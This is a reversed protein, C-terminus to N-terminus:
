DPLIKELQDRIEKSLKEPKDVEFMILLNGKKKVGNIDIYFGLNKVVKMYGDYIVKGDYNNISYKKGSIHKLEFKFGVLSEKFTLKKKYIIDLGDRIYNTNNTISIHLRADGSVGNNFNGQGRLVLISNNKVGAPIRAIIPKKEILRNGNTIIIRDVLIQKITGSWSEEFKITIKKNINLSNTMNRYFNNQSAGQRPDLGFAKQFFGMDPFHNERRRNNKFNMENDYKQRNNDDGLVEYAKSIKQFMAKNGNPRDPHFKLSMKRYSKKIEEKSCNKKLGLTNYYDEAM